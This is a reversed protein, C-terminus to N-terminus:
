TERDASPTRLATQKFEVIEDVGEHEDLQLFLERLLPLREQDPDELGEATAARHRLWEARFVTLGHGRPRAIELAAQALEDAEATRGQLVAIRGLEVLWSAELAPQKGRRSFEVAREIWKRAEGIGGLKVCCNGINGAIHSMHRQDDHAAAQERAELFAQKAEAFDGGLYLAKGQVMYAWALRQPCAQKCLEISRGAADQALPLHGRQAQLDALVVYAEAQTAPHKTSLSIAREASAIASILAGIRKLTTARRVELTALRLVVEEKPEPAELALKHAMADYVSLAQRFDGAWFYQSARHELEDDSLGTVDLPVVATLRAREILEKPDIHLVNSLALMAELGPFNQGREIASVAARSLRWPSERTKASVQAQTLRLSERTSRLFNGVSTQAADVIPSTGGVKRHTKSKPLNRARPADRHTTSREASM